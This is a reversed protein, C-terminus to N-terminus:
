SIWRGTKRVVIEYPRNLKKLETDAERVFEEICEKENYVPAVLSIDIM